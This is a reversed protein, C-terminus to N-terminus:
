CSRAGRGNVDALLDDLATWGPRRWVKGRAKVVWWSEAGGSYMFTMHLAKTPDRHSVRFPSGKPSATDDPPLRPEGVKVRKWRYTTSRVRTRYAPTNDTM